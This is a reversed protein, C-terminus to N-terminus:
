KDDRGDHKQAQTIWSMVVVESIQQSSFFTASNKSFGQVQIKSVM